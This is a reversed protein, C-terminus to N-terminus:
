ICPMLCVFMFFLLEHEIKIHLRVRNWASGLHTQGTQKCLDASDIKKPTPLPAADSGTERVWYTYSASEAAKEASVAAAAAGAEM